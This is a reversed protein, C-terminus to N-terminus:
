AGRGQRQPPVNGGLAARWARARRSAFSFCSCTRRPRLLRPIVTSSNADMLPTDRRQGDDFDGDSEVSSAASESGRRSVDNMDIYVSLGEVSIGWAAVADRGAGGRRRERTCSTGSPGRTSRGGAPRASGSGRAWRDPEVGCAGAIRAHKCNWLMYARGSTRARAVGGRPASGGLRTPGRRSALSSSRLSRPVGVTRGVAHERTRRRRRVSRCRRTLFESGRAATAGGSAKGLREAELRTSRRRRRRPPPPPEGLSSIERRNARAAACTRRRAAGGCRRRRRPSVSRPERRKRFLVGGGAQGGGLPDSPLAGARASELRNGVRARATELPALPSERPPRSEGGGRVLFSRSASATPLASYYADAYRRESSRSPLPRPRSRDFRPGRPAKACRAAADRPGACSAPHASAHQVDVTSGRPSSRSESATARACRRARRAKERAPGRAAGPRTQFDEVSSSRSRRGRAATVRRRPLRGARLHRGRRTARATRALPACPVARANRVDDAADKRRERGRNSAAFPADDTPEPISKPRSEDGSAYEEPGARPRQQRGPRARAALM